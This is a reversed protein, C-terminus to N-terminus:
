NDSPVLVLPVLEIAIIPVTTAVVACPSRFAAFANSKLILHRSYTEM